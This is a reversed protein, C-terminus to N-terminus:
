PSLPVEEALLGYSPLPLDGDGDLTLQDPFLAEPSAGAAHPLVLTVHWQGDSFLPMGVIWRSEGEAYSDLAINEGNLVLNDGQRSAMLPTNDRMPSLTIIM